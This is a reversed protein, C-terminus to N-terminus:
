GGPTIEIPRLHDGVDVHVGEVDRDLHQAMGLQAPLRDHHRVVTRSPDDRGSRVGRALETNVRRQAIYRAEHVLRKISELTAAYDTPVPSSM